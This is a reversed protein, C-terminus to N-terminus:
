DSILSSKRCRIGHIKKPLHCLCGQKSTPTSIIRKTSKKEPIQKLYMIM